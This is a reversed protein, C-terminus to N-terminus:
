RRGDVSLNVVMNVLNFAGEFLLSHNIGVTRFGYKAGLEDSSLLYGEKKKTNSKGSITYIDTVKLTGGPIMNEIDITQLTANRTRTIQYKGLIAVGYATSDRVDIRVVKVTGDAQLFAISRRPTEVVEAALLSFEFCSVHNIKLKSWRKHSIDYILAHTFSSIGYSIVLYRDSVLQLRKQMVGTLETIILEQTEDNYDEFVSGALFDTLEPFTTTTNTLSVLQMGSTTYAYHNGQTADYTVLSRRAIGGSAVIEKFNFPYRSNGSAPAAVANQNTYVMFGTSHAVCTVINGKAGQVSGGGAGTSLSPTFDTPDILSSWAIYSETWAIMYGLVAVIGMINAATLGTLTVDAFTHTTFDFKKCGVKYVYIYTIGNIYATTIEKGAFTAFNGIFNWAYYPDLSYYFDGSVTYAIFAKGGSSAEFVPFCDVFGSAIAATKIEYAVAQYGQGTALVNHCYFLTPVGVDKDVDDKSILPAVYTQDYGKIFIGRGSFESLFPFNSAALNVRIPSQAM